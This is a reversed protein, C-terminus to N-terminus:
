HRVKHVIVTATPFGDPLPIGPFEGTKEGRALYDKLDRDTKEDVWIAKVEFDFGIDQHGGIYAVQRWSEDESVKITGGQPWWVTLGERHAFVWLYKGSFTKSKGEVRVSAGVEEGSKPSTIVIPSGCTSNEIIELLNDNAGARVLQTTVKTDLEFDVGFKKVQDIIRTQDVNKELLGLVQQLDLCENQGKEEQSFLIGQVLIFQFYLSIILVKKFFYVKHKFFSM